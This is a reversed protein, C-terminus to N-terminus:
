IECCGMWYNDLYKLLVWFHSGWPPVLPFILPCGFDISYGVQSDHIDTLVNTGIWPTSNSINWQTHFSQGAPPAVPFTSILLPMFSYDHVMFIYCIEHCDMWYNDLYKIRFWLHWGWPPVLPLTLLDDTTLLILRRPCLTRTIWGITSM